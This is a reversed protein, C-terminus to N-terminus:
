VYVPFFFVSPVSQAVILYLDTVCPLLERQERGSCLEDDQKLNPNPKIEERFINLQVSMIKRQSYVIATSLFWVYIGRTNSPLGVTVTTQSPAPSSWAVQESEML